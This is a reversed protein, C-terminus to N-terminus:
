NGGAEILEQMEAAKKEDVLLKRALQEEETYAEEGSPATEAPKRYNEPPDTLYRRTADRSVGLEAKRKMVEARKVDDNAIHPLLYGDKDTVGPIFERNAEVKEINIGEKKRLREQISYEGTEPDVEEAQSQIRAIREAPTEPWEPNSTTAESELPEPLAATNEPIVLDPRARYDINKSKNKLSFMSYVDTLTQEEQGTGTGYTTGGVCGAMLLASAVLGAGFALQRTSIVFNRSLMGIGLKGFGAYQGYWLAFPTIKFYPRM